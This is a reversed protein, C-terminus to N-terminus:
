YFAKLAAGGLEHVLVSLDVLTKKKKILPFPSLTGGQRALLVVGHLSCENM